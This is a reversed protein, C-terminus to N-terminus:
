YAKNISFVWVSFTKSEIYTSLKLRAELRFDGGGEVVEAMRAVHADLGIDLVVLNAVIDGDGVGVGGRNREEVVSLALQVHGGQAAAVPCGGFVGATSTLLCGFLVVVEKVLFYVVVAM